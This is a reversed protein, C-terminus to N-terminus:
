PQDETTFGSITSVYRCGCICRSDKHWEYDGGEDETGDDHVLVTICADIRFPGYSKCHPCQMGELCNNNPNDTM